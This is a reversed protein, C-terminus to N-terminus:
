ANPDHRKRQAEDVLRLAENCLDDPWAERWSELSEKSSVFAYGDFSSNAVRLHGSEGEEFYHLELSSHCAEGVATLAESLLDTIPEDRDKEDQKACTELADALDTVGFQCLANAVKLATEEHTDESTTLPFIEVPDYPM